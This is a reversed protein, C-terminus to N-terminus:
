RGRHTDAAAGSGTWAPASSHSSSDYDPRPARQAEIARAHLAPVNHPLVGGSALLLDLGAAAWGTQGGLLVDFGAEAATRTFPQADVPLSGLATVAIVMQPAESLDGGLM